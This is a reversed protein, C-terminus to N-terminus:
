VRIPTHSLMGYTPQAALRLVGAGCRRQLLDQAGFGIRTQSTVCVMREFVMIRVVPRQHISLCPLPPDRRGFGPLLLLLKLSSLPFQEKFFAHAAHPYIRMEFDKKYTVMAKVLEDLHANIRRDEAGYNGLV